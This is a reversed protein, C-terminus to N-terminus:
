QLSCPKWRILHIGAAYAVAVIGGASHRSNGSVFIKGSLVVCFVLILIAVHDAVGLALSIENM